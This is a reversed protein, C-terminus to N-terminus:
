STVQVTPSRRTVEEGTDLRCYLSPTGVVSGVKGLQVPPDAGAVYQMISSVVWSETGAQRWWQVPHTGLRAEFVCWPKADSSPTEPQLDLGACSNEGPQCYSTGQALVVQQVWVSFLLCQASLGQGAVLLRGVGLAGWTM